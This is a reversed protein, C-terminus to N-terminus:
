YWHLNLNKSFIELKVNSSRLSFDFKAWKRNLKRAMKETEPSNQEKGGSRAGRFDSTSIKNLSHLPM